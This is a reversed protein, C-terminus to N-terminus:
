MVELDDAHIKVGISRGLLKINVLFMSQDDKETLIGKASKLPGRKVMVSSGEELSSYINLEKGSEVMLKLSTVESFPVPTPYGPTLSVFSVVGGSKLVNLFEEPNPQIYVFLYGPFLPFEVLKRRDKWQKFRKISPLFAETGKRILGGFAVFEHRSKVYLAYWNKTTDNM